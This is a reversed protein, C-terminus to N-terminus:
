FGPRRGDKVLLLEVMAECGVGAAPLKPFSRSIRKAVGSPGAVRAPSGLFVGFLRVKIDGGCRLAVTHFKTHKPGIACHM